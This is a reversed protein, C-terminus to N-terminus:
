KPHILPKILSSVERAVLRAGNENFHVDDYFAESSKPTLNALDLCHLRLDDCTSLLETNYQNMAFALAEISYYRQESNMSFVGVAGFLLLKKESEPLDARWMFPQTMFIPEIGQARAEQAIDKIHQRYIKLGLNINPVSDEYSSADSRNKRGLELANGVRDQIYSSKYFVSRFANKARVFLQILRLQQEGYGLGFSAPFVLFSKPLAKVPNEHAIFDKDNPLNLRIALDNVGVLFLAFDIKPYQQPLFRIHFLHELATKGSRGANGVWVRKGTEKHLIQQTIATWTESDDLYLCETTSGGIALIRVEQDPNFEEGRLGWSNTTFLKEGSVGPM